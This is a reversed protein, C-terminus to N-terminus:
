MLFVVVLQYALSIQIALLEDFFIIRKLANACVDMAHAIEFEVDPQPNSSSSLSAYTNIMHASIVVSLYTLFEVDTEPPSMAIAVGRASEFLEDMCEDVNISGSIKRGVLQARKAARSKAKALQKCSNEVYRRIKYFDSKVQLWYVARRLCVLKTLAFVVPLAQKIFQWIEKEKSNFIFCTIDPSLWRLTGSTSM